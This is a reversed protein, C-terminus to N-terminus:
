WHLSHKTTHGYVGPLSCVHTTSKGRSISRDSAMWPRSPFTGRLARKSQGGSGVQPGKKSKRIAGQRKSNGAM